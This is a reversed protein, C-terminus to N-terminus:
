GITYIDIEPYAYSFAKLIKIIKDTHKPFKFILSLEKSKIKNLQTISDLKTINIKRKKIAKIWDILIIFSVDLDNDYNLYVENFYLKLLNGKFNPNIEIRSLGIKNKRFNEVNEEFIALIEKSRYNEDQYLLVFSVENMKLFSGLNENDLSIVGNTKKFKTKSSTEELVSALIMLTLFM